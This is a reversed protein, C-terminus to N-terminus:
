DKTSPRRDDTAPIVGPYTKELWERMKRQGRAEAAKCEIRSGIMIVILGAVLVMLWQTSLVGLLNACGFALAFGITSIASGLKEKRSTREWRVAQEVAGWVLIIAIFVFAM